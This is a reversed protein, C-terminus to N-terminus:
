ADKSRKAWLGSADGSAAVHSVDGHLYLRHSSVGAWTLDVTGLGDLLELDFGSGSLSVIGDQYPRQMAHDCLLITGDAGVLM